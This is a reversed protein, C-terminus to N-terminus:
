HPRGQSRRGPNWAKISSGARLTMEPLDLTKYIKICLKSLSHGLLSISHHSGRILNITYTGVTVKLVRATAYLM